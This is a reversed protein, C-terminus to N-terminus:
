LGTDTNGHLTQPFVAIDLHIGLSIESQQGGTHLNGLPNICAVPQEGLKQLMKADTLFGGSRVGAFDLM